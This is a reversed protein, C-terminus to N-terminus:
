PIAPRSMDRRRARHTEDQVKEVVTRREVKLSLYGFALDSREDARGAAALSRDQPSDGAQQPGPAGAYGQTALDPIGGSRVPAGALSRDAKHRLVIPQEWVHRHNAVDLGRQGVQRDGVPPRPGPLAQGQRMHVPQVGAIGVLQGAPLALANRQSPCDGTRRPQQKEVLGKRRHVAARALTQVHLQAPQM